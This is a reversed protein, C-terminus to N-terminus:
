TTSDGLDSVLKLFSDNLDLVALRDPHSDNKQMEVFDQYQLSDISRQLARCLDALNTNELVKEVNPSDLSKLAEKINKSEFIEKARRDGLVKPLQRVTNLPFVKKSDVWRAFDTMSYGSNLIAEKVGPRQLEVFGSFRTPDFEADSDLIQRYHQEMDAFARIYTEIDRHKGGCYAHIREVTMHEVKYLHSLYKAKSYPDWARPGVLHSQLRVADISELSLNEHVLAPITDWQGEIEQEKFDQYIALRTNGEIVTLNEGNDNVIIPHNIGGNAKISNKLSEYTTTNDGQDESTAVGLALRIRAPNVEPYLEVWKKIRPNEEDLQLEDVDVLRFQGGVPM